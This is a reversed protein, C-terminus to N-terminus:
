KINNKPPKIMKESLSLEGSIFKRKWRTTIRKAIKKNM